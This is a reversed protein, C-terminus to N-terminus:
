VSLERPPKELVRAATWSAWPKLASAPRRTTLQGIKKNRSRSALSEVPHLTRLRRIPCEDSQHLLSDARARGSWGTARQSFEHEWNEEPRGRPLGRRTHRPPRSGASACCARLCSGRAVAHPKRESQDRSCTAIHVSVPSTAESSGSSGCFQDVRFFFM